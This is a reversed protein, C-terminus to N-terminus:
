CAGQEKTKICSKAGEKIKTEANFIDPFNAKLMSVSVGYKRKIREEETEGARKLAIRKANEEELEERDRRKREAEERRKKEEGAATQEQERKLRAQLAEEQLKKENEQSITTSARYREAREVEAGKVFFSLSNAYISLASLGKSSLFDQESVPVPYGAELRELINYLRSGPLLAASM